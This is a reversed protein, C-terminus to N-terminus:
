DGQADNFNGWHKKALKIDEEQTKKPGGNLLVIIEGRKGIQGFYLRYGQGDDIIFESVGSGVSKNKGLNGAEVHDLRVMISEYIDPQKGELADMFENFPIRGNATEYRQIDRPFAEV